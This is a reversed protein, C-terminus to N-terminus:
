REGGITFMPNVGSILGQQHAILELLEALQLRQQESLGALIAEQHEYALRCTLRYAAQGAKTLHLANNRRDSEHPRREVLGKRELQDVYAVMRSPLTGLAMALASQSMGPKSTLIKLIGAHAPVLELMALRITLRSTAHAGLQALLSATGPDSEAKPVKGRGIRTVHIEETARPFYTLTKAISRM